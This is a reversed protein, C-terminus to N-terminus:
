DVMCGEVLRTGNDNQRRQVGDAVEYQTFVVVVKGDSRSVLEQTLTVPILVDYWATRSRWLELGEQLRVWRKNSCDTHLQWCTQGRPPVARIVEDLTLAQHGTEPAHVMYLNIGDGDQAIVHYGFSDMLLKFAMISAGFHCDGQWSADADYDVILPILPPLNRNFEVTISRPRHGGKLVAQLVWWTSFDLDVTLHDFSRPVEYKRFIDFINDSTMYEQVLNISPNSFNGDIVLGRWGQDRLYRTTCEECNQAGLEVYHRCAHSSHAFDLPSSAIIAARIESLV